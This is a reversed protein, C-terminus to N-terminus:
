RADIFEGCTCVKRRTHKYEKGCHPCTVDRASIITRIRRERTPPSQQLRRILDSATVHPQITIATM